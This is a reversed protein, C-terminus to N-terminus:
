FHDDNKAEMILQKIEEYSEDILYDHGTIDIFNHDRFAIVNDLNFLAPQGHWHLEIFKPSM